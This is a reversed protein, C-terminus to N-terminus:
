PIWRRRWPKPEDARAEGGPGMPPEGASSPAGRWDLLGRQQLVTRNYLWGERNHQIEERQELNEERLDQLTQFATGTWFAMTVATLAMGGGALYAAWDPLVVLRRPRRSGNRQGNAM